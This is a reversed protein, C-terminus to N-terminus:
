TLLTIDNAIYCYPYIEEIEVFKGILDSQIKISEDRSMSANALLDPSFTASVFLDVRFTKGTIVDKIEHYSLEPHYKIIEYKM